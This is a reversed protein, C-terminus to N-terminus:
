SRSTTWLVPPQRFHGNYQSSTGFAFQGPVSFAAANFYISAPNNPDLSTRDQGTRVPGPQCRVHARRHVPRRQGAHQRLESRAARRQPVPAYRRHDLQRHGRERLRGSDGLFHKGTGFPLDFTNIFNFVNPLDFPLYSKPQTLNYMDQPYVQNQSFIQRYTLLALSKSRVYSSTFQWAGFRRQVKITAADYWTQGQGSNRPGSM